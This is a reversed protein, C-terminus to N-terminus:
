VYRHTSNAVSYGLISEAELRHREQQERTHTMWVLVACRRGSFVPLVGHSNRSNFSVMRGCKPRVISRISTRPTRAFVLEGGHADDNLYVAASFDRWSFDWNLAPCSANDQYQCNDAHIVHSMDTRNTTSDNQATRCNVQVLHMYLRRKLRFYAESYLRARDSVALMVRMATAIEASNKLEQIVDGARFGVFVEKRTMPHPENRYGNGPLGSGGFKLLVDCEEQSMLGDAVLRQPGNLCDEDMAVKIGADLFDKDCHPVQGKPCMPWTDVYAQRDNDFHLRSLSPEKTAGRMEPSNINSAVRDCRPHRPQWPQQLEPLCFKRERGRRDCVPDLPGLKRLASLRVAGRRTLLPAQVGDQNLLTSM